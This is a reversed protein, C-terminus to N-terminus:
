YVVSITDRSGKTIYMLLKVEGASVAASTSTPYYEEIM